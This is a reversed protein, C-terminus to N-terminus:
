AAKKMEPLEIVKAALAEMMRQAVIPVVANGIFKKRDSQTGVMKYDAPFGQIRLLEEIMLMRMKIDVIGYLAMFEKIKKTFHSDNEYICIGISGDNFQVLYPLMGNHPSVGNYGAETEVLYPPAKDMRAILTFAPADVNGGASVYQPSMLYHFKRNATITGLPEDISKVRSDSAGYQTDIVIHEPSVLNMKPLPLVAGAPKDLNNHQGGGSFDRMIFQEATVLNQGDKTRLTKAPEDKSAPYGNGYVVDLFQTCQVVEMNGGTQTITRAPQEVSIVKSDANGGNRQQIFEASVIAQGDICKITGAPGEVSINKGDPKGSYYKSIFEASVIAQNPSTTIVRALSDTSYIKSSTTGGASVKIFAQKGGAVFKILGAYIRELTKESLPKKRTFISQGKVELNLVERVAKWTQLKPTEGITLQQGHHQKAAKGNAKAHTAQPWVLPLHKKAFIAFFRKRSTFAGYDASNLECCDYKYKGQKCMTDRWRVYDTGNKSSVPKGNEDLPGWSMFEVVNEITIYDPNLARRYRYLDNALTRSDADRPQGGKAKSFNTCELSAHLVLKANPYKQRMENVHQVLPKIKLTRIDEFFHKTHPHNLAHSEIANADHNVCAIAQAVKRGKVEANEFGTTTGGFGCFLDVVIFLIDENIM